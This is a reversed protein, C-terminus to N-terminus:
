HRGASDTQVFASGLLPVLLTAIAGLQVASTSAGLDRAVTVLSWGRHVHDAHLLAGWWEYQAALDSPRMVVLPLAVGGVLALLVRFLSRERDRHLLAFLAAALPFLKVLSGLAVAAAGLSTKKREFAAFALLITGAVLLNAQDGDTALLV